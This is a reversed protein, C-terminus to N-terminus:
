HGHGGHDHGKAEGKLTNTLKGCHLMGQGMYPNVIEEGSQLWSAKAMPCHAVYLTEAADDSPLAVKLLEIAAESLPAWALRAADLDAFGQDDFHAATGVEDALAKLQEHDTQALHHAAKHLVEIQAAVGDLEDNALKIQAELYAEALEDVQKQQSADLEIPEAPHEAADGAAAAPPADAACSLCPGDPSSASSSAPCASAPGALLLGVVVASPTGFITSRNM